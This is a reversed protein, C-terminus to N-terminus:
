RAPMLMTERPPSEAPVPPPPLPAPIVAVAVPPLM